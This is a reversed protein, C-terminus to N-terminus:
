SSRLRAIESRHEAEHQLLHHIVWAPSVDHDERERPTHFEDASMSRLRELLMTRVRALRDVHEDLSMGEVHTLVGEDNRDDFPLLAAAEEMAMADAGGLIDMVLWDTEILAVHCLLSGITNDSGPRRVDLMEDNVSELETLTRQRCEELAALWRGVEPDDAIPKLVLLERQPM